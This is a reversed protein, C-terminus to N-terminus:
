SNKQDQRTMNSFKGAEQILEVIVKEDSISNLQDRITGAIPFNRIEAITLELFDFIKTGVLKVNGSDDALNNKQEATLPKFVFITKPEGEDYASVFEVRQNINIGRIM